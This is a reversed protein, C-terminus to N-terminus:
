TGVSWYMCVNDFIVGRLFSFFLFCGHLRFKQCSKLDRLKICEGKWRVFLRSYGVVGEGEVGGVEGGVQGV